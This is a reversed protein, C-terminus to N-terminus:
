SRKKKGRRSVLGAVGLALLAGGLAGTAVKANRPLQAWQTRMKTALQPFFPQVIAASVEAPANVVSEVASSAQATLDQDLRGVHIHDTELTVRAGLSEAAEAVKIRDADSWGWCRLDLADGRMHRSLYIGRSVFEAIAGGWASQNRPMALLAVIYKESRRYLRKLYDEGQKNLISLMRQAQDYPSRLGDTVVLPYSVPLRARLATLFTSMRTTLTVGSKKYVGPILQTVGNTFGAGSQSACKNSGVQSYGYDHVRAYGYESPLARDFGYRV